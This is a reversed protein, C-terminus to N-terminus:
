LPVINPQWEGNLYALSPNDQQFAAFLKRAQTETVSYETLLVRRVSRGNRIVFFFVRLTGYALM